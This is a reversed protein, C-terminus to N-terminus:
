APFVRYPHWTGIALGPQLLALLEGTPGYSRVGLPPNPPRVYDRRPLATVDMGQRVRATQQRGLILAPWDLIVVDPAHVLHDSAGAELMAVAADLPTADSASFPGVRTRRLDHLYAGPGLAQGLDHALSRVYFGKGCTVDLSHRPHAPDTRDLELV